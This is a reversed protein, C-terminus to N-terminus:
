RLRPDDLDLRYLIQNYDYRPTPRPYEPALADTQEPRAFMVSYTGEFYVFSEAGDVLDTHLRPNYFSYGQHSLVKVADHWPGTPSDASAFWVEGLLSPTGFKQTFIAIWKKRYPSWAISGSQPVVPGQPSALPKATPLTQWQKPDLWAEYRAPIKLMPFPNGFLLWARGSPDTWEVAHGEPAVPSPTDSDSQWLVKVPLFQESQDNWVCLGRQWATLPPDIKAYSAVLHDTGHHDGVTALGSLWTPGRGPINAIARPRGEPSRFYDFALTLPPRVSHIPSPKSTAGSAHFIGLPYHPLATDGWVWFRKGRYVATQVSDCGVIASETVPANHGLKESEAYLGSGTLRGIRQAIIDRHVVVRQRGGPRPTLRIGRHGFGDAPVGYGQGIVHFWVERHYLEPADLAIRGANDSVFRLGSVTRLEVLPVPWGTGSEVVEISCPSAQAVRGPGALVALPLVALPLGRGTWFVVSAIMQRLHETM